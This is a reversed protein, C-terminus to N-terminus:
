QKVVSLSPKGVPRFRGGGAVEAARQLAAAKKGQPASAENFTKLTLALTKLTGAREPLSVAKMMADRRKDDNDDETAAVIMDELEGRKSTLVDLEELMRGALARGDDALKGADVPKGETSPSPPPPSRDPERRNAGRVPREWGEAKARKRIATDSLGHRDAIERISDESFRFEQEIKDWESAPKRTAM